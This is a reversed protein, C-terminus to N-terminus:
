YAAVSSPQALAEQVRAVVDQHDYPKAIFDSAGEYFAGDITEQRDDSTLVIVPTSGIKRDARLKRLVELGALRPLGLDLILLDPRIIRCLDLACRGDPAYHADFGADRLVDLLLERETLSDEAVLVRPTTRTMGSFDVMRGPIKLSNSYERTGGGQGARQGPCTAVPSVRLYSRVRAM